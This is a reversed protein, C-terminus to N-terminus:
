VWVQVEMISEKIKRSVVEDVAREALEYVTVDGGPVSVKEKQIYRQKTITEIAQKVNGFVTHGEEHEDVGLRRLHQWLTDEPIKGGCLQLIGVVVFTLGLLQSSDKDQVFRIRLEEPLMSKLVYSKAETTSQQSCRTLNNKSSRSRQLEKMEYGFISAFQKQAQLIALNPLNRQRYNKTVIQTLEERKVPVGPHQHNKFLMFRMMEAVLKDREQLALQVFFYIPESPLKM